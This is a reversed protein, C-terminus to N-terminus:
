YRRTTDHDRGRHKGNSADIALLTGGAALFVAAFLSLWLAAGLRFWDIRDAYPAGDVMRVRAMDGAFYGAVAAEAGSQSSDYFSGTLGKLGVVAGDHLVSVQPVHRMSGNQRGSVVKTAVIPVLERAGFVSAPPPDGATWATHAALVLGLGISMPLAVIWRM